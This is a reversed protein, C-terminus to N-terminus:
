SGQGSTNSRRYQEALIQPSVGLFYALRMRWMLLITRLIGYHEWRRSSTTLPRQICAPWQFRRLRKSLEVDEMLPIDAYAGLQEFLDRKLFIAQDGTAIGTLCSRLNMLREVIRLLWHAGSLRVNFRGWLAGKALAEEIMAVANEPLTTDAHLFLLIDGSAHEAGKNMQRARGRMSNVVIAGASSAVTATDDRSGGDVVIVEATAILAPLTAALSQAENLAPIIISVSM